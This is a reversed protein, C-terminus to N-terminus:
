EEVGKANQRPHAAWYAEVATEISAQAAKGIGAVVRSLERGGASFDALDGLTTIGADALRTRKARSVTPLAEDLPVLRWRDDSGPLETMTEEGECLTRTNEVVGEDDGHPELRGREVRQFKAV